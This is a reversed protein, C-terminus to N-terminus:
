DCLEVHSDLGPQATESQGQSYFGGGASDHPTERTRTCCPWTKRCDTPSVPLSVFSASCTCSCVCSGRNPAFETCRILILRKENSVKHWTDLANPSKERVLAMVSIAEAESLALSSLGSLLEKLKVETNETLVCLYSSYLKRNYYYFSGFVLYSTKVGRVKTLRLRRNREKPHYMMMIPQRTTPLLQQTLRSMLMM